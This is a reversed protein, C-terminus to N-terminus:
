SNNVSPVLILYPHTGVEISLKVFFSPDALLRERFGSCASVLNTHYLKVLGIQM